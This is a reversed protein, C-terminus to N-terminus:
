GNPWNQSCVVALKNGDPDRFFAEYFIEGRLGPAGEDPAGLSTAKAHLSDVEGRTEVRLAVMVGNGVTAPSGDFPATVLLMPEKGPTAWAIYTESEMVRSAGSDGLLAEYFAGARGMDNTGLSVWGIM